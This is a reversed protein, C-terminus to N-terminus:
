KTLSELEKSASDVLAAESQLVHAVRVIEADAEQWHRLEIGERVGPMTKPAYGSYIGPAYILHKYWPRGPLGAADTLTRESQILKANLDMLQGDSGPFGSEQAKKFATKYHEASKGLTDLANELPAFNM